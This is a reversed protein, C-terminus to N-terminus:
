DPWGTQRLAEALVIGAAVAVNLSRFGPRMPIRVRLDARAHVHPPVGAGESGLLLIDDPAFTAAPLPIAGTATLLVIRGTTREAFTDWDAHRVVAAKAAYDMGARALARDGFPFGMPEILDVAVGLCAATRLITGVNGAIDPQHLAIRM